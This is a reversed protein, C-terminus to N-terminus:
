RKQMNLSDDTHLAFKLLITRQFANFNDDSIVWLMTRDNEQTVSIGEMNDVPFPPKLTAIITPEMVKGNLVSQVDLLGIKASVGSFISFRRHLVVLRGDPLEAADTIRFGEPARYGFSVPQMHNEVPDSVYELALTSNDPGDAAESFILFRGDRMRVMAEAGGNSPWKQMTEPRITKELRSFSRSYRRIAHKQEFGVWFQGTDPDFTMSEADNDFKSDEADAEIPLAAIFSNGAPANDDLDFGMLVGADSLALFGGNGQAMLASFGGFDSNDSKLEWGGLYQLYGGEMDMPPPADSDISRIEITQNDNHPLQSDRVFTGPALFFLLALCALFRTM